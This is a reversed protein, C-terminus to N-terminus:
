SFRRGRCALDAGAPGNAQGVIGVGRSARGSVLAMMSKPRRVLSLPSPGLAEAAALPDGMTVGGNHRSRM